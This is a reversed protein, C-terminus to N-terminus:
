IQTLFYNNVLYKYSSLSEFCGIFNIVEGEASFIGIYGPFCSEEYNSWIILFDGNAYNLKICNGNPSDYAYYKYLINLNCLSYVFNSIRSKDLIELRTMKDDDFSKLDSEHDPVWSSFGKQAPNDYNILEISIVRALDEKKFRYNAPDCASLTFCSVLLFVILTLIKVNKAKM